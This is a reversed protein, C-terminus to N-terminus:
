PAALYAKVQDDSLFMLVLGGAIAGPLAGILIGLIEFVAAIKMFMGGSKPNTLGVIGAILELIGLPVALFGAFGLLGLCPTIIGIPCLGMSLVGCIIGIMTGGVTFLTVAMGSVLWSTIFINVLGSIIQVIAANKLKDPPADM